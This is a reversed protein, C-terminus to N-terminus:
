KKNIYKAVTYIKGCRKCVYRGDKQQIFNCYCHHKMEM